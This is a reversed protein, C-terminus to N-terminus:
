GRPVDGKEEKHSAIRILELLTAKTEATTEGLLGAIQQAVKMQKIIVSEARTLAERKMAEMEQKRRESESIDNIIGVIMGYDKLPLITQLTVLGKEPYSVRKDVIAKQEEWARAFDGPDLFSALPRGQVNDCGSAFLSLARPNFEQITLDPDVVIVANATSSVIAGALSAIKAKMYPVCMEEEAWGQYVAYAKERCSNYGCAGCNAEDAPRTKGNRLLIARIEAATPEPLRPRRDQYARRLRPDGLIGEPIELRAPAANAAALYSAVKLRRASTSEGEPMAPGGICGGRCAMAEIFRPRIRGAALDAFTEMCEELGSVSLVGSGLDAPLGAAALVGGTVPFSRAPLSFARGDEAPLRAFDIGAGAFLAELEPFTIVADVLEAVESRRREDIKATCPGVFVVRTDAGLREKLILGHVAMPSLTPALYPIIEPYHKEILNVVAPCCASIIPETREQILNAYEAAVVQAGVATEEVWAFGVARAAAALLAVREQPFAAAFSPAVSLAVRERRALMNELRLLDSHIIKAKQPCVLTCTGCAVCREELIHAQGSGFSIAKVPCYRLCRHCDRCDAARTTIVSM